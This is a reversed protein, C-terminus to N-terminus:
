VMLLVHELIAINHLREPFEEKEKALTPEVLTDSVLRQKHLKGVHCGVEVDPLQLGGSGDRVHARGGDRVALGLSRVHAQLKVRELFLLKLMSDVCLM